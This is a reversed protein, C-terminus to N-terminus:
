GLVEQAAKLGASAMSLKFTAEAMQPMNAAYAEKADDLAPGLAEKTTRRLAMILADVDVKGGKRNVYDAAACMAIDAAARGFQDIAAPNATTM